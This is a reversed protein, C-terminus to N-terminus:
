LNGGILDAIEKAYEKPDIMSISCGTALEFGAFNNERPIVKIYFHYQSKENPRGSMMCINYAMDEKILNYVKLLKSIMKSLEKMEKEDIEEYNTIHNKPLIWTEYLMQPTKPAIISWSDSELIISAPETERMVRCIICFAKSSEYEQLMTLPIEELAVIQWHSHAISAGAKEGSNKFIQIFNIRPNKKLDIWRKQMLLFVNEWHTISFDKPAEIHKSTDIVVDHVGYLTKDIGCIPYKNSVIRAIFGNDTSNELWINELMQENGLCFPCKAKEAGVFPRDRRGEAIICSRRMSFEHIMRSM